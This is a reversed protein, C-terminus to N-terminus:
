PRTHQVVLRWGHRKLTVDGVAPLELLAGVLPAVVEVLEASPGAAPPSTAQEHAVDSATAQHSAGAPVVGGAAAESEPRETKRAPGNTRGKTTGNARRGAAQNRVAKARTTCKPSCYRMLAHADAPLHKGCGPGECIRAGNAAADATTASAPAEPTTIASMDAAAEEPAEVTSKPWGNWPM